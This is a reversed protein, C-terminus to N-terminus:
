DFPNFCRIGTWMKSIQRNADPSFYAMVVSRDIVDKSPYQAYLQGTVMDKDARIVYNEDNENGSFFYGLPYDETDSDDEEAGYCWKIYDFIDQSDGGAISSTYGIYNMNRIANEPKSIYNVFAEVAQQKEANDDIGSKLMCWGDFWLNTCSKPVAYKLEVGDEEAQQMSYPGDGSWQLNAYVKGSVLDSKGSDTEFSYANDKVERLVAGVQAIKESDTNNLLEQLQEKYDNKQLFDDSQLTDQEVMALGAFYCDRVSDKTTIRKAYKPNRLLNWDEAEARSIKEPNYVFGLTGWMYGAVYNGLSLGNIEQKNLMERIFPSVGRAYYNEKNDTDFFENSFPVVKDESLLKMIMYESPCVLDFTDGITLQNYLDENTGFTSYEVKIKKHYTQEYWQQFDDIMSNRGLITTGNELDIAESSDWGGEDIYEEWNAVRLVLTDSKAKQCGTLSVAIAAIFAAGLIIFDTKRKM